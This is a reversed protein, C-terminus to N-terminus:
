AKAKTLKVRYLEELRKITIAILEPTVMVDFETTKGLGIKTFKRLQGKYFAILGATSALRDISHEVYNGKKASLQSLYAQTLGDLQM